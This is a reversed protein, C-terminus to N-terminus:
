FKLGALGNHIRMVNYNVAYIRTENEFIENIPKINFKFLKHVIRSMNVQGTPYPAEPNLSFSYMGFKSPGLQVNNLGNFSEPTFTDSNPSNVHYKLAQEYTLFLGDRKFVIENNFRLEAEVIENYLNPVNGNTKNQSVFFLEKVPHQFNLIVSKENEGPKM